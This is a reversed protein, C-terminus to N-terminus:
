KGDRQADILILCSLFILLASGGSFFNSTCWEVICDLSLTYGIGIDVQPFAVTWLSRVKRVKQSIELIGVWYLM